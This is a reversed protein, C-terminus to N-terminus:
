NQVVENVKPIGKHGREFLPVLFIQAFGRLYARNTLPHLLSFFLTAYVGNLSRPVTM